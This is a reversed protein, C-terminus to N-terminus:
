SGFSNFAVVAEIFSFVVLRPPTAKLADDQEKNYYLNRQM